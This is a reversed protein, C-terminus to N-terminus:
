SNAQILIRFSNRVIRTPEQLLTRLRDGEKRSQDVWQINENAIREIKSCLQVRRWASSYIPVKVQHLQSMMEVVIVDNAWGM